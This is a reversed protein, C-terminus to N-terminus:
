RTPPTHQPGGPRKAKKPIKVEEIETIDFHDYKRENDVLRMLQVQDCGTLYHTYATAIGEIGLLKDRYKKGLTFGNIKQLKM